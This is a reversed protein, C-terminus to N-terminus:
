LGGDDLYDFIGTNVCDEPKTVTLCFDSSTRIMEIQDGRETEGYIRNASINAPDIKFEPFFPNDLFCTTQNIDNVSDNRCVINGVGFLEPPNSFFLNSFSLQGEGGIIGKYVHVMYNTYSWPGVFVPEEDAADIFVTWWGQLEPIHYQPQQNAYDLLSYGFYLPVINVSFSAHALRNFVIEIHGLSGSVVPAQYDCNICAGDSFENLPASVKWMAGQEAADELQGTFLAWQSDGSEDYGFYYGVLINNQIDILFGSGSQEPNFWSGNYPIPQTFNQQCDPCPLTPGQLTAEVQAHASIAMLAILCFIYKFNNMKNVDTLINLQKVTQTVAVGM